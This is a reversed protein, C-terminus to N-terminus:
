HQGLQQKQEGCQTTPNKNKSRCLGIRKRVEGEEEQGLLLLLLVVLVLVLLFVVGCWLVVCCLAVFRSM